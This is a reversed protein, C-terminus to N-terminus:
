NGLSSSCQTIMTIMHGTTELLFEISLLKRMGELLYQKEYHFIYEKKFIMSEGNASKFDLVKGAYWIM